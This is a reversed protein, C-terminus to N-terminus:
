YEASEEGKLMKRDGLDSPRFNYNWIRWWRGRRWNRKPSPFSRGRL